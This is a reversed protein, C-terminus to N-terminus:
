HTTEERLINLYREGYGRYEIGNTMFQPLSTSSGKAPEIQTDEHWENFSNVMILNSTRKEVLRRAYRLASEFLSGPVDSESLQRSLPGHRKEPRVGLDNYGPSVSPIFACNHQSAAEQWKKSRRFHEGIGAETAYPSPKDMSGYVDYSYVRYAFVRFHISLVFLSPSIKILDASASPSSKSPLRM